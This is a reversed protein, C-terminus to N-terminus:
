WVFANASFGDARQRGLCLDREIEKTTSENGKRFGVRAAEAACGAKRMTHTRTHTQSCTFPNSEGIVCEMGGSHSSCGQAM